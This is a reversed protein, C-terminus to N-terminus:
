EKTLKCSVVDDFQFCACLTQLFIVAAHIGPGKEPGKEANKQVGNL